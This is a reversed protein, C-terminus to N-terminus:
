LYRGHSIVLSFLWIKETELVYKMTSATKNCNASGDIWNLDTFQAIRFRGDENFKLKISEQASFNLVQLLLFTLVFYAIRKM